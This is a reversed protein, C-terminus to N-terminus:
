AELGQQHLEDLDTILQDLEDLLHQKQSAQLQGLLNALYSAWQQRSQNMLQQLEPARFQQPQLVLREFQDWDHQQMAEDFAALWGNRYDLWALTSDPLAQTFLRLEQQQEQTLSGIWYELRNQYRLYRQELQEQPSRREVIRQRKELDKELQNMMRQQQDPGVQTLLQRLVPEADGRLQAWQQEVQEFTLMLRASDLESRVLDRRLQKLLQSYEPLQQQRHSRHARDLLREVQLQQAATLNLYDDIRDILLTDLNNYALQYRSCGSIGILLVLLIPIIRFRKWDITRELLM